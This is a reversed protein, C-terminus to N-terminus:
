LSEDADTEGNDARFDQGGSHRFALHDRTSQSLVRHGGARPTASAEGPYCSGCPDVLRGGPPCEMDDDCPRAAVSSNRRAGRATSRRAPRPRPWPRCASRPARARPRAGTTEPDARCGARCSRSPPRRRARAHAVAARDGRVSSALSVECRVTNGTKVAPPPKPMGSISPPPSKRIIASGVLKRTSGHAGCVPQTSHSM